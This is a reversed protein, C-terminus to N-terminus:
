FVKASINRENLINLLLNLQDDEACCSFDCNNEGFINCYRSKIENLSNYTNVVYIKYNNNNRLASQFLFKISYDTEPFSFGYIYINKANEIANFAHKWLTRLITNNYQSQKDLVPPIIFANLDSKLYDAERGTESYLLDTNSIKASLWNISGHLKIIEPMKTRNYDYNDNGFGFYGYPIRDFLDMIPIKYFISYNINADKYEKSTNKYLLEELVLDYNLTICICKNDLIYKALKQVNNDNGISNDNKLNYFYTALMSTIYKYLTEDSSIQVESKYPLNSSLYTLLTEINDHFKLPVEHCFHQSISDQNRWLEDKIYKSLENLTPYESNLSKSFGSGFFFIDNIM